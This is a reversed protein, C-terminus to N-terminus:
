ANKTNNMLSQIEIKSQPYRDEPIYLSGKTGCGNLFLVFITLILYYIKM